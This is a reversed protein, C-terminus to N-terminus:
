RLPAHGASAETPIEAQHTHYHITEGPKANYPQSPGAKSKSLQFLGAHAPPPSYLPNRSSDLGPSRREQLPGPHSQAKRVDLPSSSQSRLGSKHEMDYDPNRFPGQAHHRPDQEIGYPTNNASSNAASMNEPITSASGNPANIDVVRKQAAPTAFSSVPARHHQSYIHQPQQQHIPHQPNAWPTQELFAEEAATRFANSSMASVANRPPMALSHSHRPIAVRTEVSIGMKELDEELESPRAGLLTPAAPFGVYKAVGAMISVEHNYATQHAIQQSRRTPFPVVHHPSLEDTKFRDHQIAYFQKSIASSHRERVDRVRQFFTSHTQAREALSKNLLAKLRYRYLTHEYKIKADRYRQVCEIQRLYEPHTPNPGSLMELERNLKTVREDYIKDRLAAFEKELTALSEMASMKKVSEEEARATVEAEDAEDLPEAPEEVKRGRKGKSSVVPLEADPIDDIPVGDDMLTAPEEDMVPEPSLPTDDDLPDSLGSKMSNRRKKVPEDEGHETGTEDGTEVRKRKKGASDVLESEDLDPIESDSAHNKSSRRPKSPSDDVTHENEDVDDLTTSQHLKSPSPGASGIGAASLVIDRKRINHPSDEIRETEAESDNELQKEPKPSEDFDSPEDDSVDDIESLSSSRGDDMLPDDLFPNREGNTMLSEPGTKPGTSGQERSEAVEM